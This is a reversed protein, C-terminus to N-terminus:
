YILMQHKLMKYTLMQYMRLQLLLPTSLIWRIPYLSGANGYEGLGLVLDSDLETVQYLLPTSFGDDAYAGVYGDPKM